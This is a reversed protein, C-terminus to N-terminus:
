RLCNLNQNLNQVKTIALLKTSVSNQGCVTIVDCMEPSHQQACAYCVPGRSQKSPYGSRFSKYNAHIWTTMLTRM